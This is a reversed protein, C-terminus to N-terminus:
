EDDFDDYYEDSSPISFGMVQTSIPEEEAQLKAIEKNLKLVKITSDAKKVELKGLLVDSLNELFPIILIISIIGLIYSLLAKNGRM